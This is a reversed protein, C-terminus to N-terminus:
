LVLLSSHVTSGCSLAAYVHTHTGVLIGKQGLTKESSSITGSAIESPRNDAEMYGLELGALLRAFKPYIYRETIVHWLILKAEFQLTGELLDHMVDPLLTEVQIHTHTHTCTHTYTHTHMHTYVTVCDYKQTQAHTYYKHPWVQFHQLEFLISRSNIGLQTLTDGTDDAELEDCDLLHQERTRLIFM